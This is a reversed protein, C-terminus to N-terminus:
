FMAVCVSISTHNIINLQLVGRFVSIQLSLSKIIPAILKIFYKQLILSANVVSGAVRYRVSQALAYSCTPLTNFVSVLQCYIVQNQLTIGKLTQYSKSLTPDSELM